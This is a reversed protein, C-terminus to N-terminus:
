EAAPSKGEIRGVVMRGALRLLGSEVELRMRVGNEIPRVIFNVHDKGPSKKLESVAMKAVPQAQPDGVAAILGAIPQAAYSIRVPAVTKAGTQESSEVAAKLKEAADRGAAVYVNEKGVAVIIDLEEGIYKVVKERNEANDPIPISIKHLNLGGATEADLKVFQGVAGNDDEALKVIAHVIKDFLKGDAVYFAGLGTASNESLLGTIM